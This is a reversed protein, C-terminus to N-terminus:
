RIGTDCEFRLVTGAGAQVDATQAVPTGMAGPCAAVSVHWSGAPVRFRATGFVDTSADRTIGGLVPRAVVHAGLVPERSVQGEREVPDIPGRFVTAVLSGTARDDFGFPSLDCAACIVTAAAITGLRTLLTMPM